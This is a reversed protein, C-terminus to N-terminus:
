WCALDNQHIDLMASSVPGLMGLASPSTLAMDVFLDGGHVLNDRIPIEVMQSTVGPAFTLQMSVPTYQVGAVATGSGTNLDVTAATSTDGSRTVTVSAFGANENVQYLSTSFVVVAPAVATTTAQAASPLTQINGANDTAVSYFAYTHGAEGNYTATTDTTDAQWLVFPGGNESAFVNYSAVGSGHLNDTGSWSVPFNALVDAPLAVVSSTPAVADITNTIPTAVVPANNDFVVSASASLVTGTPDSAKPQVTYNVFGEGQPSIQDPPLFGELVNAPLDLTTPDISTFTWTVVGTQSNFNAIVDVYVGNAARDDVQTSFSTRGPPVSVTVGGFGFSGLQFTAWDLSGSLSDTVTVVQAPATATPANTFQITYPLSQGIPVFGQAGFGAPGVIDNPDHPGDNVGSASAAGSCGSMGDTDDPQIVLANPTAVNKKPAPVSCYPFTPSKQTNPGPNKDCNKTAAELQKQQKKLNNLKSNVLALQAELDAQYAAPSRLYAGATSKSNALSGYNPNRMNQYDYYEQVEALHAAAGGNQVNFIQEQIAHQRASKQAINNNVQNLNQIDSQCDLGSPDAVSVPDNAAYTRLNVSGGALGTPDATTFQGTAPLYARARMLVLGSGDSVVGTAGHFTFPNALTAKVTTMEGFPLYSYQNVYTGAAGTIGVTNGSGDFDYYSSAGAASVQSVLGLGYTFNATLGSSGYQAVVTGLGSPDVLYTTQQGYQTEGSLSGLADYQYAYTGAPGSVGTLQNQDNYAYTTTSGGATASVLNGDADYGYTTAGAQTVEDMDNITYATTVGGVTESTRNGDADYSYTITPGGPPAVRILEGDADYGYTTTGAATTMSTLEGDPNYTYAFQSNVAGGPAFNVLDLIDDAQDYTDTTYTGNGMTEKVLLGAPDYTYTVIAAGLGNTLGTLRDAADYQYNVTFGDQDVSQTRDGAADYTFKLFRGGPYAVETLLDASSYSLTTTGAADTATVMNGDADYTFTTSTGDAFTESTAQGYANYTVHTPNGEQDITETM